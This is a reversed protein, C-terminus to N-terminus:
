KTRICVISFYKCYPSLYRCHVDDLHNVLRSPSKFVKDCCLKQFPYKKMERYKMNISKWSEGREGHRKVHRRLNSRSSLHLKYDEKPCVLLKRGHNVLHRNLHDQMKDSCFFFDDISFFFINRSFFFYNCLLTLHYLVLCPKWLDWTFCCQAVSTLNQYGLSIYNM